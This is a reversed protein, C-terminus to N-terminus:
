KEPEYKEGEKIHKSIAKPEESIAEFFPVNSQSPYCQIFTIEDRIDTFYKSKLYFTIGNIDM